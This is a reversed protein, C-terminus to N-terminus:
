RARDNRRRCPARRMALAIVSVSVIHIIPELVATLQLLRHVRGGSIYDESLGILMLTLNLQLPQLSGSKMEGRQTETSEAVISQKHATPTTEFLGSFGDCSTAGVM